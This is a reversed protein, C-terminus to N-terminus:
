AECCGACRWSATRTSATPRSTSSSCRPRTSCLSRSGSGIRRLAEVRSTEFPRGFVYIEGRQRKLLGLILKLTTTKGAGNPGLFGYISGEVVQLSVRNLAVEGKSFRHTLDITEFVFKTM